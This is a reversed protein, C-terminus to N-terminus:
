SPEKQYQSLYKKQAQQRSIKFYNILDTTNVTGQWYVLLEIFQFHIDTESKSM